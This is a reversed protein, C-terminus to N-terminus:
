NEPYIERKGVNILDDICCDASCYNESNLYCNFVSNGQLNEGCQNCRMDSEEKEIGM